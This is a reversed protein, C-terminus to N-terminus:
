VVPIFDIFVGYGTKKDHINLYGDKEFTQINSLETEDIMNKFTFVADACLSDFTDNKTPFKIVNIGNDNACKM